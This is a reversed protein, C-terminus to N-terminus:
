RSSRRGFEIITWRHLHLERDDPRIPLPQPIETVPSAYGCKLCKGPREGESNIIVFRPTSKQCRACYLTM